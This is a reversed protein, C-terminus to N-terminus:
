TTKYSAIAQKLLAIIKNYISLVNTADEAAYKSWYPTPDIAGLYGNDPDLTTAGIGVNWLIVRKLGFHLHDGTSLGTSDAYGLVQGTKVVDGVQVNRGGKEMHWYITKANANIGGINFKETSVLEIGEGSRDDVGSFIVVGDHAARIPQGHYAMFDIGNHGRIDIGHDQYWKGNVGFVQTVIPKKIPYWLELKSM